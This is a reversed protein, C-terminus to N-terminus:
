TTGQREKLVSRDVTYVSVTLGEREGNIVRIM